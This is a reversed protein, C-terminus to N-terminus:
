RADQQHKFAEIMIDPVSPVVTLRKMLKHRMANSRIVSAEAVGHYASVVM